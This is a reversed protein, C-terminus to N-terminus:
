RRAEERLGDHAPTQKSRLSPSIFTPDLTPNGRRCLRGSLLDLPHPRGMSKYLLKRAARRRPLHTKNHLDKHSEGM